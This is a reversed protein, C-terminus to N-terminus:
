ALWGNLDAKKPVVLVPRDAMQVINQAVSGLFLRRLAGRGHTGVVILSAGDTRAEALVAWVPNGIHVHRDATVGRGKLKACVADLAAEAKAADRHYADPPM